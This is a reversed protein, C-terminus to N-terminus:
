IEPQLKGLFTRRGSGSLSRATTRGIRRRASDGETAQSRQLRSDPPLRVRAAPRLDEEKSRPCGAFFM